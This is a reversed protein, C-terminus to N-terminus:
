FLFFDDVDAGALGQTIWQIDLEIHTLSDQVCQDKGARALQATKEVVLFIDDWPVAHFLDPIVNNQHLYICLLFTQLLIEYLL